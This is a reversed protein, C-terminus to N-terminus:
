EGLRRQEYFFKDLTAIERKLGDLVYAEEATLTRKEKASELAKLYGVVNNEMLAFMKINEVSVKPKSKQHSLYRWIFIAILGLLIVLGFEKSFLWGINSWINSSVNFGVKPSVKKFDSTDVVELWAQYSGSDKLSGSWVIDSNKSDINIVLPTESNRQLYFKAEVNGEGIWGTIEFAESAVIDKLANVRPLEIEPINAVISFGQSANGALDFATIKLNHEGAPITSLLYRGNILNKNAVLVTTKEDVLIEYRDVGSLTDRVSLELGNKKGNTMEVVKAQLDTPATTDVKITYRATESWCNAMKYRLGFHRIGDPLETLIKESIPPTYIVNPVVDVKTSLSTQVATAGEPVTWSLTSNRESVWTDPKNTSSIIELKLPPTCGMVVPQKQEVPVVKPTEPVDVVAPTIDIGLIGLDGLINTGLGDNALVSGSLFKLTASGVAKAKFTATIIKGSSGTFGPNPVIGEFSMKGVDNSFAPELVWFSLLSGTKSLSVVELKDPPFYVSGSIANIAKGASNVYLSVTFTQGVKYSTAPSSFSLHAAFVFSPLFGFM